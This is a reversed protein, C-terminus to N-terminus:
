RNEYMLSWEFVPCKRKSVRYRRPTLPYEPLRLTGGLAEAEARLKGLQESLRQQEALQEAFTSVNDAEVRGSQSVDWGLQNAADLMSEMQEAYGSYTAIEDRRQNVQKRTYPRTWQMAELNLKKAIPEMKQVQQYLGVQESVEEKYAKLQKDTLVGSPVTLTVDTKALKRKLDVVDGHLREQDRVKREYGVVDSESLTGTPPDIHAHLKALRKVLGQVTSRFLSQREEEAKSAADGAGVNKWFESIKAYDAPSDALNDLRAGAEKLPTRLGYIGTQMQLTDIAQEM